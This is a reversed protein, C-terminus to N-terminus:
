SSRRVAELTSAGAEPGTLHLQEAFPKLSQGGFLRKSSALHKQGTQFTFQRAHSQRECGLAASPQM